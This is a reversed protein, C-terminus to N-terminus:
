QTTDTIPIDSEQQVTTDTEQSNPPREALEKRFIRTLCDIDFESGSGGLSLPLLEPDFHEYLSTYDAGHLFLRDRMKQKMFPRIIGLVLSVYWPQNVLHMGKFRGPFSDQFLELFVGKRTQEAQSLKVITSFSVDLLNNLITIGHVQNEEDEILKELLLIMTKFNDTFPVTDSDWRAPCLQIAVSWDRRRLDTVGMLGSRLVHDVVRPHMDGLLDAYKHRFKYYNCYLLTARDVDFKRARLFRLLFPGDDRSFEVVGHEPDNKAEAIKTRLEEVAEARKDPDERLERRAKELTEGDIRSLVESEAM